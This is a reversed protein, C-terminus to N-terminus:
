VNVLPSCINPGAPATYKHKSHIEVVYLEVGYCTCNRSNGRLHCFMVPSGLAVNGIFCGGIFGELSGDGGLYM